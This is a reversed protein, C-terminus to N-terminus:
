EFLAVPCVPEVDFEVFLALPSEALIARAHTEDRAEIFGLVGVSSGIRYHPYLLVGSKFNNWDVMGQRRIYELFRDPTVRPRLRSSIFFRM